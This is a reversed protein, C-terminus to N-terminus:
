IRTLLITRKPKPCYGSQNSAVMYLKRSQQLFKWCYMFPSQNVYNVVSDSTTWFSFPFLIPCLLGLLSFSWRKKQTHIKHMQTEYQRWLQDNVHFHTTRINDQSVWYETDIFRTYHIKTHLVCVNSILSLCRVNFIPEIGFCGVTLLYIFYNSIMKIVYANKKEKEMKKNSSGRWFLKSVEDLGNMYKVLLSVVNIKKQQTSYIEQVSIVIERILFFFSIDLKIISHIPM